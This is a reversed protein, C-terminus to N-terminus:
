IIGLERLRRAAARAFADAGALRTHANDARGQPERAEEGPDFDMFLKRSGEEGAEEVLRLSEGYLDIVPVGLREATERVVRPYVGHSPQLKGDQWCRICIPTMLVPLAGKERATEVFIGLNEPFAKEPDTYREPKEKNEDNHGFQILMLDGPALEAAARELRGEALFTRTSRGAM